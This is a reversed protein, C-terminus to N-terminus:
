EDRIGRGDLAQVVYDFNSPSNSTYIATYYEQAIKEVAEDGERWVGNKDELGMIRNRWRRESVMM